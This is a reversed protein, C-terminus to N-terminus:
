FSFLCTVTKLNRYSTIFYGRQVQRIKPNQMVILMLECFIVESTEYSGPRILANNKLYRCINAAIVEKDIGDKPVFHENIRPDPPQQPAISNKDRNPTRAERDRRDRSFM